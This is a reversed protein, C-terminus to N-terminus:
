AADVGEPMLARYLATMQDRNSHLASLGDDNMLDWGYQGWATLLRGRDTAQGAPALALVLWGQAEMHLLAHAFELPGQEGIEAAHQGRGHATMHPVHASTGFSFYNKRDRIAERVQGDVAPPPTVVGALAIRSNLDRPIDRPTDGTVLGLTQRAELVAHIAWATRNCAQWAAFTQPDVNALQSATVNPTRAANGRFEEVSGNFQDSLEDIWGPVARGITGTLWDTAHSSALAGMTKAADATASATANTTLWKQLDKAKTVMPSPAFPPPNAAERAATLLGEADEVDAPVTLGFSRAANLAERANSHRVEAPLYTM